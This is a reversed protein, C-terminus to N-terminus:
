RVGGPGAKLPFRKVDPYFGYACGDLLTVKLLGSIGNGCTGTRKVATAPRYHQCNACTKAMDGAHKPPDRKSKAPADDNLARDATPIIKKVAKM